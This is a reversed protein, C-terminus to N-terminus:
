DEFKSTISDEMYYKYDLILEKLNDLVERHRLMKHNTSTKVLLTNEQENVGEISFAIDNDFLIRLADMIIDAPVTHSKAQMVQTQM